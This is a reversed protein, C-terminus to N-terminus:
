GLIGKLHDLILSKLNRHSENIEYYAVSQEVM